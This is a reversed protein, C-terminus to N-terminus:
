IIITKITSLCDIANNIEQGDYSKSADEYLTKIYLDTETILAQLAIDFAISTEDWYKSIDDEIKDFLKDNSIAKSVSKSLSKRWDSFIRFVLYAIAAAIAIGWVVPGGTAGVLWPLTSASSTIGLTALVGSAQGILIYAGLNSAITSVYFSMAGFATLGSLGGIFASRTDFSSADIHMKGKQPVDSHEMIPLYGPVIKAYEMLMLDLEDAFKKSKSKFIRRTKSELYSGIAGSIEKKASDKNDFRENIFDYLFEANKLNDFVDNMEDISESKLVSISEKLRNFKVLLGNVDRRFRADQETVEKLREANDRRKNNLKEIEADLQLTLQKKILSVRKQRRLNINKQTDTVLAEFRENFADVFNQNESLFPMMREAWDNATPLTIGECSESWDDYLYHTMEKNFNNSARIAAKKFDDTDKVTFAATALITINNLPNKPDLPVNGPARLINAFFAPEGDRLFKSISSTFLIADALGMAEYAKRVDISDFQFESDEDAQEKRIFDPDILQGPTDLLSVRKLVPSDTYVVAIYTEPYLINDNEDRAGYVELIEPKGKAIVFEDYSGSVLMDLNFKKGSSEYKFVVVDEDIGLPRQDSHVFLTSAATMPQYGEPALDKGMLKNILHSKGSDSPGMVALIPTDSRSSLDRIALDFKEILENPRIDDPLECLQTVSKNLASVLDNIEIQVKTMVNNDMDNSGQISDTYLILDSFEKRNAGTALVYSLLIELPFELPGNELRSVMKQSGILPCRKSVELQSLGARKRSKVLFDAMIKSHSM